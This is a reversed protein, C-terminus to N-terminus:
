NEEPEDDVLPQQIISGVAGRAVKITVGEAIEVRLHDDAVETVHAFVGSTLMVEDGVSLSSQMGRLERQRKSAPRIILLWFLLAIAAFPLLGAFEM